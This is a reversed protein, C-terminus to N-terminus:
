WPRVQVVFVWLTFVLWLCVVFGFAQRPHARMTPSLYALLPLMYLVLTAM